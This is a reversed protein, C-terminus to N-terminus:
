RSKERLCFVGPTVEVKETTLPNWLKRDMAIHIGPAGTRLTDLAFEMQAPADSNPSGFPIWAGVLLITRQTDGLSARLAQGTEAITYTGHTIIVRESPATAVADTLRRRDDDSFERSDKNFLHVVDVSVHPQKLLWQEASSVERTIGRDADAGDITGGTTFLVIRLPHPPTATM